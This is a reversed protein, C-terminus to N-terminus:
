MSNASGRQVDDVLRLWAPLCRTRLDYDALIRARAAGRMDRYRAPNALVDIVASALADTDDFDVLRGTAGDEIVEEVPPTRSAVIPAGASMAELVSWSLVFPLTLYVHAASAQMLQIFVAHPVRGVFHVRDMPLREGVETLFTEKWSRGDRTPAGYSVGDGGVIVARADPRAALIAPLARMFRHYGRYPELNRNVFTVIEDGAAVRLNQRRLTLSAGADPRAVDTDIGEHLVHLRRRLLAPFQAAQWHTAAVLADAEIMALLMTANRARTRIASTLNSTAATAEGDIAPARATYYYEAQLIHPADPFVERCFLTEGWGPHGIVLDPRYSTRRLDLLVRAVAEGRDVHDAFSQNRSADQREEADPPRWSYRTTPVIDPRNNAADTVARM